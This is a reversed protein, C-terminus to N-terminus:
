DHDVEGLSRTLMDVSPYEEQKFKDSRSSPILLDIEHYHHLTRVTVGTMKAIQGIKMLSMDDGKADIILCDYLRM